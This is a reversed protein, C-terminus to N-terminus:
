DNDRSIIPAACYTVDNADQLMTVASTHVCDNDRSIIPAACYTVDKYVFGVSYNQSLYASHSFKFTGADGYMEGRGEAPVNSYTRGDEISCYHFMNHNYNAHGILIGCLSVLLLFM